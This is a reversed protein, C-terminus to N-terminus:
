VKGVGFTYNDAKGLEAAPTAGVIEAMKIFSVTQQYMLEPDFKEMEHSESEM